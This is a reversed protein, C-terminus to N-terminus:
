IPIPLELKKLLDATENLKDTTEKLKTSTQSLEQRVETLRQEEEERTKRLAELDAELTTTKEQEKLLTVKVEGSGRVDGYDRLYGVMSATRTSMEFIAELLTPGSMSELIARHAPGMHFDVRRGVNYDVSFVGGPLLVVPESSERRNRKSSSRDGEKCSKRKRHTPVSTGTPASQSAAETHPNMSAVPSVRTTIPVSSPNSTGEGDLPQSGGPLSMKERVPLGEPISEGVPPRVVVIM